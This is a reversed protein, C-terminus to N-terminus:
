RRKQNRMELIEVTSRHCIATLMFRWQMGRGQNVVRSYVSTSLQHGSDQPGRRYGIRGSEMSKLDGYRNLLSETIYVHEFVEQEGHLM